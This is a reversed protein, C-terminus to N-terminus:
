DYGKINKHAESAAAVMPRGSLNCPTTTPLANKEFVIKKINGQKEKDLYSNLARAKINGAQSEYGAANSGTDYDAGQASKIKQMIVPLELDKKNGEGRVEVHFQGFLAAVVNKQTNSKAKLITTVGSGVWTVMVFKTRKSERDGSIIRLLGYKKTDTTSACILM